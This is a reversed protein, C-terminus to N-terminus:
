GGIIGRKINSRNKNLKTIIRELFMDKWVTLVFRTKMEVTEIGTCFLELGHKWVDDFGECAFPAEDDCRIDCEVSDGFDFGKGLFDPLRSFPIAFSKFSEDNSSM